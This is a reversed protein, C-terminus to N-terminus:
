RPRAVPGLRLEAVVPRHDSFESTPVVTVRAVTAREDVFLYDLRRVPATSPFTFYSREDQRYREPPVVERLGPLRRLIHLTADAEYNDEPADAFRSKRRAEPPVTNMDGGVVLVPWSEGGNQDRLAGVHRLLARAQAQRNAKDWAELHDNIVWMRNEGRAIQVQQSYRFLYFRKYWWPQSQPKPFLVVRNATIPYRSLVAGGSLMRGYHQRPPWYPFPIYRARWSVARAGYRLGSARALAALEDIYRSRKSAFDIEQLLVVDAKKERILAGMRRLREAIVARPAVDNRDLDSDAGHAWAINWTMVVLRDNRAPLRPPPGKGYDFVEGARLGPLQGGSSSWFFFGGIGAAFLAMVIGIVKLLARLRRM